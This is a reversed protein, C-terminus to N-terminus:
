SASSPALVQFAPEPTTVLPLEQGLSLAKLVRYWNPEYAQEDGPLVMAESSM